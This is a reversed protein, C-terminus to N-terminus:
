KRRANMAAILAPITKEFYFNKDITAKSGAVGAAAGALATKTAASDFSVGAINLGIGLIEVSSDLFQKDVTSQRIFQIYRINMMTLRGTIFKNRAAKLQEDDAGSEKKDFYYSISTAEGFNEALQELDKDTDFSPEPAGGRYASNCGSLLFSVILIIVTQTKQKM